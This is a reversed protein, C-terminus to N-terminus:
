LSLIFEDYDIGKDKLIECLADYARNMGDRRNSSRSEIALLDAYLPSIVSDIIKKDPARRNSHYGVIQGNEDFSPTVHAFVWYYDGFKTQNVVYGFVEHGAQIKDWILKFVCRPMNPHRILSHPKGLLETEKFDSVKCFTQNVYTMAGKLDTKSVIIEDPTFTAERGSFQLQAM